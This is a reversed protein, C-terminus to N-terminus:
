GALLAGVVNYTTSTTFGPTLLTAVVTSATHENESTAGQSLKNFYTVQSVSNALIEAYVTNWAAPTALDQGYTQAYDYEQSWTPSTSQLIFERIETGGM